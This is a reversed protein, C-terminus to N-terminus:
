KLSFVEVTESLPAQDEFNQKYHRNLEVNPYQSLSNPKQGNLLIKWVRDVREKKLAEALLKSGGYLWLSKGAALSVAEDLSNVRPLGRANSQGIIITKTRWLGGTLNAVEADLVVIGGSVKRGIWAALSIPLLQPNVILSTDMDIATIANIKAGYAQSIQNRLAELNSGIAGIIPRSLTTTVPM